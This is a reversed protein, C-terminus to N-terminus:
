RKRKALWAKARLIGSSALPILLLAFPLIYMSQAEWFFYCGFGCIFLLALLLKLYDFESRRAERVLAFFEIAACAYLLTQLGDFIFM